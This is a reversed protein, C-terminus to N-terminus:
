ELTVRPNIVGYLLDVLLNVLVYGMAVFLVSGQIQPFDRAVIANVIYRGVGPRSFVNEVFVAGGLLDAFLLGLFTIIPILANRLIHRVLIIDERQGKGRATRVYDERMVEMISARTLRALVAAPGVSLCFAPLILYKLNGSEGTTSIWHLRVAFIIILIIALWFTPVSLGTLASVMIAKDVFKGKNMAAFLGAPLGILTALIVAAVTLQLTNPLREMLESMVPMQGRFSTGFDGHLIGWLFRGYQVFIPDDLHLQAHLKAIMEPNATVGLMLIAPDGPTIKAIAFVLFSVGLLVPILLLLRRIIYNTM